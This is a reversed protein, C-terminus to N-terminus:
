AQSLPLQQYSRQLQGAQVPIIGRSQSPIISPEYFEQFTQKNNKVMTDVEEQNLHTDLMGIIDHFKIATLLKVM